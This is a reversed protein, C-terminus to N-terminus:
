CTATGPAGTSNRSTEPETSCDDTTGYGFEEILASATESKMFQLLASAAPNNRGQVLLVADQRIPNYLSVPVLWASGSSIGRRSWVQSLAVFGLDANGSSVFQYAQAINEGQVLKGQVTETLELNELVDLAAAGYPALRPNAIALKDFGGRKLVSPTSDILHANASWLALTGLAYTFRSGSVALTGQELKKPKAQDASLFVEFPAGNSIQAYLKGSSGFSLVASHGTAAEFSAAIVKMPAIFNAAVAVKVNEASVALSLSSFLLGAFFPKM